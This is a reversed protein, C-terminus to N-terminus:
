SILDAIKIMILNVNELTHECSQDLKLTVSLNDAAGRQVERIPEEKLNKQKNVKTLNISKVVYDDSFIFGLFLICDNQPATQKM